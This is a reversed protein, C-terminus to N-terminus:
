SYEYDSNTLPRQSAPLQELQLQMQPDEFEGNCDGAVWIDGSDTYNM